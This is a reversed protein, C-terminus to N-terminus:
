LFAKRLQSQSEVSQFQSGFIEKESRARCSTALPFNSQLDTSILLAMAEYYFPFLRYPNIELIGQGLRNHVDRCSEQSGLVPLFGEAEGLGANAPPQAEEKSKNVNKM